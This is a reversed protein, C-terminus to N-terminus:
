SRYGDGSFLMEADLGAGVPGLLFIPLIAGGAFRIKLDPIPPAKKDTVPM